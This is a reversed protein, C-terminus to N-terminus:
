IESLTKPRMRIRHFAKSLGCGSEASGSYHDGGFGVSRVSDVDKGIDDATEVLGVVNDVVQNVVGIDLVGINLRHIDVTM